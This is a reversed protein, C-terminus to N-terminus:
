KVDERRPTAGEVIERCKLRRFVYPDSQRRLCLDISFLDLIDVLRRNAEDQNDARGTLTDLAARTVIRNQEIERRLSDFQAEPTKFGFGLAILFAVILTFLWNFKMFTSGIRSWRSFDTERKPDYQQDVISRHHEGTHPM